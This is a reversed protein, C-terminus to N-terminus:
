TRTADEYTPPPRKVVERAGDEDGVITWDDDTGEEEEEGEDERVEVRRRLAGMGPVVPVCEGEGRAEGERPLGPVREGVLEVNMSSGWINLQAVGSGKVATFSPGDKLVQLGEWEHKVRGNNLHSIVEGEWTSPFRVKLGGSSGRFDTSIGRLGAQPCSVCPHLTISTSGSMCRVDVHSKSSPQGLPYLSAAISGTMTSVYTKYNHVLAATISGSMSKLSSNFIREPTATSPDHLFPAMTVKISGSVTNLRLEAPAKSSSAPHPVITIEISGSMTSISLLDYLVFTGAVSNSMESIVISRSM